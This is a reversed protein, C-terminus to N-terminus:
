RKDILEYFLKYAVPWQDHLYSIAKESVLQMGKVTSFDIRKNWAICALHTGKYKSTQSGCGYCNVIGQGGGIDKSGCFPCPLLEIKNM